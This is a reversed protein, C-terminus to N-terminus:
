EPILKLKEIDGAIQAEQGQLAQAGLDVDRKSFIRALGLAETTDFFFKSIITTAAVGLGKTQNSTHESYFRDAEGAESLLQPYKALAELVKVQGESLMGYEPFQVQGGANWDKTPQTDYNHLVAAIIAPKGTADVVRDKNTGISFNYPASKGGKTPLEGRGSCSNFCTALVVALILLGLINLVTKLRDTHPTM